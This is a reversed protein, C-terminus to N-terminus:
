RGSFAFAERLRLAALFARNAEDDRGLERLALGFRTQAEPDSPDLRVAEGFADAADVHQGARELALGRSMHSAAAARRIKLPPLRKMLWSGGPARDAATVVIVPFATETYHHNAGM